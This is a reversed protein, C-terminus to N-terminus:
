QIKKGGSQPYKKENRSTCNLLWPRFKCHREKHGQGETEPTRMFVSIGTINPKNGVIHERGVTALTQQGQIHWIWRRSQRM